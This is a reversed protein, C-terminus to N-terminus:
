RLRSQSRNADPLQPATSSKIQNAIGECILGWDNAICDEIDITSMISSLLRDIDRIRSKKDEESGMSTGVAVHNAIEAAKAFSPSCSNSSKSANICAISFDDLLKSHISM